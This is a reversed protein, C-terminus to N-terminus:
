LDICQLATAVRSSSLRNLHKCIYNGADILAALSVGTKIGLGDLMYLLDESAVNGTAGKAYPCGGLGAVSSDIVTIGLELAAFINALAQGYTDHFHVALFNLPVKESVAKLMSQVQLPTGVGNTDALAIERCGASFVQEAVEVVHQLPIEGEFPCGLTCSIHGRVKMDNAHAKAIIEKCRLVGQEISSNSNKRSFTESAAAIVAVEKAGAAIADDLGRLNPVLVPYSTGSKPTLGKLVAKNDALQPLLKPPVFSTAEITKLGAESLKHIFEIKVSTDVVQRENQLGDRPGVEVIRVKNPFQM